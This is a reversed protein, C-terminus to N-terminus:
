TILGPFPTPPNTSVSSDDTDYGSNPFMLSATVFADYVHRVEVEKLGKVM